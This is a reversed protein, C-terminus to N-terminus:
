AAVALHEGLPPRQRARPSHRLGASSPGGALTGAQWGASPPLPSTLAVLGLGLGVRTGM